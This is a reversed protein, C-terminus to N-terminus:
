CTKFKTTDSRDLRTWCILPVESDAFKFNVSNARRHTARRRPSLACENIPLDAPDHALNIGRRNQYRQFFTKWM